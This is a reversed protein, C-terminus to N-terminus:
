GKVKKFKEILDDVEEITYKQDPKLVVNLVDQKHKYRKASILQGKSYVAVEVSEETKKTALIM